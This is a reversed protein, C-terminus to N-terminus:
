GIETFAIGLHDGMTNNGLPAIDAPSIAPNFWIAM